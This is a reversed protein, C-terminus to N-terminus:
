DNNLFYHIISIWLMFSVYNEIGLHSEYYQQLISIQRLEIETIPSRQLCEIITYIIDDSTLNKNFFSITKFIKIIDNINKINSICRRIYILYLEYLLNNNYHNNNYFISYLNKYM